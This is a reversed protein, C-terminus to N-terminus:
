DRCSEQVFKELDSLRYKALSGIKYYPLNYRKNCAWIALTQEKVGLYSAAQGRSLLDNSITM